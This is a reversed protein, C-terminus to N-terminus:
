SSLSKSLWWIQSPFAGLSQILTTMIKMPINVTPTPLVPIKEKPIGYMSSLVWLFSLGKAKLLM